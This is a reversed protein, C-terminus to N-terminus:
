TLSVVVAVAIGWGFILVPLVLVQVAASGASLPGTATMIGRNKFTGYSLAGKSKAPNMRAWLMPVGFAAAIFFAFIVMPLVLGPNMFAAAMIALFGLYLAVTAVYLGTPLEFSRDIEERVVAAPLVLPKPAPVLKATQVLAERALFESMSVEM